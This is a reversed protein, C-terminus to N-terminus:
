KMGRQWRIFRIRIRELFIKVPSSFFNWNELFKFRCFCKLFIFKLQVLLFVVYIMKNLLFEIRLFIPFIPVKRDWFLLMLVLVLINTKIHVEYFVILDRKGLSYVIIFLNKWNGSYFEAKLFCLFLFSLIESGQISILM